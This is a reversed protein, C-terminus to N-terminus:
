GVGPIQYLRREEIYVRVADPVQYRIPLGAAVRARLERSSIDIDPVSLPYIRDRIDPAISQLTTWAPEGVGGRSMAVIRALRVLVDPARWRDLSNVSDLGLLLYLECSPGYHDRLLRLTDVTYSPTPRELELASVAFRPNDAVALEVMALRDRSSATPAREKLPQHRAPVLLVRELGFHHAAEEAAALHGLHIPDFTGGFVGLRM